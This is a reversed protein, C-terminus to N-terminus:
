EIVFQKNTKTIENEINLIYVGPNLKDVNITKKTLKGQELVQGLMNIVKYSAGSMSNNLGIINLKYGKKVPNPALQISAFIDEDQTGLVDVRTDFDNVAVVSSGCVGEYIKVNSFTSNASIPELHRSNIFLLRDMTGTYFNGVPIKYKKTGTEYNDFSHNGFFTFDNTGYIKFYQKAYRTTNGRIFGIGQFYGESTSSFEFELVTNQKVEYNLPIYKWTDNVLLLSAGDNKISYEGSEDSNYFPTIIFNNFNIAKCSPQYNGEKNAIRIADIAIDGKWSNEKNGTIVVFRLQINVEGAYKELDINEAVWANGLWGKKTYLSIWEETNGIRAEVALEGAANSGGAQCRFTLQPKTLTSLNLCPSNLIAKKNPYGKGKGSAEVYVYYNGDSAKSPGTGNTPTEGSNRTFNLDDGTTVDKWKGLGEEFSEVYPFSSIEESCNNPNSNGEAITVEDIAIDGQWSKATIIKFRLQVSEEAAYAKLNVIATQWANGSKGSKTYLPRWLTENSKKIDVILEGISDGYMHYQFSLYPAMLTSFNLCPSNLIAIKNPYGKEQGSAEVYVYYSGKSAINPGTGNSPTVGSNRTFNIDDSVTANKWQGLGTEFSETYPFSIIEELCTSKDQKKNKLLLISSKSKQQNKNLPTSENKKSPTIIIGHNKHGKSVSFGAQSTFLLSLLLFFRM